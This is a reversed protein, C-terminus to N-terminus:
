DLFFILVCIAFLIVSVLTATMAILPLPVHGLALIKEYLLSDQKSRGEVMINRLIQPILESGFPCAPVPAVRNQLSILSLFILWCFSM